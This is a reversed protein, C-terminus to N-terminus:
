GWRLTEFREGMGLNLLWTKERNGGNRLEKAKRFGQFDRLGTSVCLM